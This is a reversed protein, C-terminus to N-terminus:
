LPLTRALPTANTRATEALAKPWLPPPPPPTPAPPAPPAPAPEGDPAPVLPAPVPCILGPLGPPVGPPWAPVEPVVPVPLPAPSGPEPIEPPPEGVGPMDPLPAVPDPLVGLGLEGRQDTSDFNGLAARLNRATGKSSYTLVSLLATCCWPSSGGFRSGCNAAGPSQRAPPVWRTPRPRL